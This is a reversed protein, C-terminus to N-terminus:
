GQLLDSVNGGNLLAEEISNLKEQETKPLPLAYLKKMKRYHEKQEQTMTNPIDMARYGMIKVIQNEDNLGRFLAKFEWWHLFDIRQLNIRYQAMFASYIYEADHEFSYIPDKRGGQESGSRERDGSQYFWIIKEVAEVLDPLITIDGYYLSLGRILKDEDPVSDDEMLLEFRISTRFDADIQYLSGSLEIERPAQDVLLNM